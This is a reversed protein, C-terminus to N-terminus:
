LQGLVAQAAQQGSLWAGELRGGLCWDGCAYLGIDPAALAGWDSTQAPRAYLWRHAQLLRTAPLATQLAKGLAQLLLEAVEAAPTDLHAAAWEPTSQLVWNCNEARGPKSHNACIWDLPGSRVFAADITTAVPESFSISVAWGPEMAAQEAARALQPAAALLPIAQPAPTAVVVQTFPGYRNGDSDTLIWEQDHRDLQTIRVSGHLTLGGLLGRSLATMRPSGVYRHQEDESPHIGHEDIRCLRPQWRAVWGQERWSELESRFANHRATFYQTGIDFEGYETRKSSMRGGTGRSKDFLEVTVGAEHLQRAASIGAMGAGIIAVSSPLSM